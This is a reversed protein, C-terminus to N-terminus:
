PQSAAGGPTMWDVARRFRSFALSPIHEYGRRDDVGRPTAGAGKRAGSSGVNTM